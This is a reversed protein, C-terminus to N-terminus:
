KLNLISNFIYNDAEMILDFPKKEKRLEEGRVELRDWFDGGLKRFLKSM